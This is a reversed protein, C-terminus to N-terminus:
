NFLIKIWAPPPIAPSYFPGYDAVELYYTGAAPFNITCTEPQGTAGSGKADCGGGLVGNFASDMFYLGLDDTNSWTVTFTHAGAAAAVFQYYQCGAGGGNGTAACASTMPSNDYFGPAAVAPTAAAPSTSTYISTTSMTLGTPVSAPLTLQFQPAAAAAVKTITPAGSSGPQPVVTLVTGGGTVSVTIAAKTGWSVVSTSQAAYAPDLTLVVQAGVQANVNGTMTAPVSALVPAVMTDTTKFTFRLTPSGTLTVNTMQGLAHTNAAVLM